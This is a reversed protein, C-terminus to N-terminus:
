GKLLELELGPKGGECSARLSLSLECHPNEESNCCDAAPPMYAWSTVLCAVKEFIGGSPSPDVNGPPEKSLEGEGKKEELGRARSALTSLLPV